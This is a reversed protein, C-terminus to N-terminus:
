EFFGFESAFFVLVAAVARLEDFSGGFPDAEGWRSGGLYIDGDSEIEGIRSGGRWLDGDSEIDGVDSSGFWIDGDGEVDGASSSGVWVDGDKEFTGARSSGVWIDGDIEITAWASGGRWITIDESLVGSDETDGASGSDSATGGSRADEDSLAFDNEAAGAGVFLRLQALTRSQKYGEYYEVSYEAGDIRTVKAPYYASGWSALILSGITIDAAAPEIDPTIENLTACKTDGDDYLIQYGDSCSSGIKGLYWDKNSWEALIRDGESYSEQAGIQLPLLTLFLVILPWLSHKKRRM